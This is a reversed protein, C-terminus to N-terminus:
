FQICFLCSRRYMVSPSTSTLLDQSQIAMLQHTPPHPSGQELRPLYGKHIISLYIMCYPLLIM